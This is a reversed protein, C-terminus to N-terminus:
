PKLGEPQPLLKFYPKVLQFNFINKYNDKHKPTLELFDGEFSYDNEKINYYIYIGPQEPINNIEYDILDFNNQLLNTTLIFGSIQIFKSDIGNIYCIAIDPKDIQSAAYNANNIYSPNEPFKKLNDYIYLDLQESTTNLEIIEKPIILLEKKDNIIIQKQKNISFNSVVVMDDQNLDKTYFNNIIENNHETVIRKKHSTDIYFLYKKNNVIKVQAVLTLLFLKENM